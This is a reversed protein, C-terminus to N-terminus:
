EDKRLHRLLPGRLSAFGNPCKADLARRARKVLKKRATLTPEPGDVVLHADLLATWLPRDWARPLAARHGDRSPGRNSCLM